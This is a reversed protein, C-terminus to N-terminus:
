RADASWDPTILYKWGLIFLKVAQCPCLSAILPILKLGSSLINAVALSSAVILIQDNSSLLSSFTKVPPHHYGKTTPAGKIHPISMPCPHSTFHTSHCGVLPRRTDPLLSLMIFNQSGRVHLTSEVSYSNERGHYGKAKQCMSKRTKYANGCFCRAPERMTM